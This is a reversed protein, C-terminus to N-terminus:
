GINQSQRVKLISELFTIPIFQFTITKQHLSDVFESYRQRGSPDFHGM